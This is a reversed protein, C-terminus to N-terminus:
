ILGAIIDPCTSGERVLPTNTCIGYAVDAFQLISYNIEQCWLLKPLYELWKNKNVLSYFTQLFVYYLPKNIQCSDLQFM